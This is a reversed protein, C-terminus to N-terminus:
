DRRHKEYIADRWDLLDAFRAALEPQTWVERTGPGLAIFSDKVPRV